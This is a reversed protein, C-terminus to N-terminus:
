AGQDEHIRHQYIYYAILALEEIESHIYWNKESGSDHDMHVELAKARKKLLEGSMDEAKSKLRNPIHIKKGLSAKDCLEDYIEFLTEM